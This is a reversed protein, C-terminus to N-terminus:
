RRLFRVAQKFFNFYTIAPKFPPRLQHERINNICVQQPKAPSIHMSECFFSYTTDLVDEIVAKGRFGHGEGEFLKLGTKVNNKKLAEHIDISQQYPVVPDVKGHFLTVPTKIKDLKDVM